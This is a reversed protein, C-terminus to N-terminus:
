EEKTPLKLKELKEWLHRPVLRIVHQNIEGDYLLGFFLDMKLTQTEIAVRGDGLPTIRTIYPGYSICSPLFLCLALIFRKM